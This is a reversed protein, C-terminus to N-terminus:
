TNEADNLADALLHAHIQDFPRQREKPDLTTRSADLLAQVTTDDWGKRPQTTEPGIFSEYSLSPDLRASYGFPIAQYDGKSYRDLETAWDTVEVEINVGNCASL